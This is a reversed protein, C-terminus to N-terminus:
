PIFKYIASVITAAGLLTGLIWKIGSYANNIPYLRSELHKIMLENQETRLIHEKLDLKIDTIEELIKDIKQEM